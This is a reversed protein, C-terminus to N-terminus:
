KKVCIDFIKSFIMVKILKEHYLGDPLACKERYSPRLRIRTDKIYVSRHEFLQRFNPKYLKPKSGSTFHKIIKGWLERKAFSYRSVQVLM